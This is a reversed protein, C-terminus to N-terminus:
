ATEAEPAPGAEPSDELTPAAGPASADTEPVPAAAAVPAPPAAQQPEAPNCHTRLDKLHDVDVKEFLHILARTADRSEEVTMSSQAILDDLNDSHSEVQSLRELARLRDLDIGDHRDEITKLKDSVNGSRPVKFALFVELVRRLVNPMMFAYDSHGVGVKEFELVKQFLYHYESDFERLQKPLEILTATRAAAGEPVAVDIFLLRATPSKGPEARARGKWAKKFENMCPQNHTFVFLQGVKALRNLLLASAYNMAKTDLSSVPDDIVVILDKIKRDESSLTSLFYCIAIATKEGESPAGRVLAGHRHLEYGEAVAVITLEGHGLYSKVLANIKDAAPGHQQVKARLTNIEATLNEAAAKADDAKTTAEEIGAVHAKYAKATQAVYHKRIADRAKRQHDNFSDVMAAHQDCIANVAQCAEELAQVQNQMEALPPLIVAVPTTPTAGRAQLAQLATDLLSRGAALVTSLTAAAAEFSPQFEASLQAAAPVAAIAIDLQASTEAGAKAAEQVSGIFDSVKDDFASALLARRAPSVENGCHLCSSLDHEAHYDHGHKVWQVMTPHADLGEVVVSGISKPCLDAATELCALLGALPVDVPKVKAPAESRACTATAADLDSDSLIDQESAGAKVDAIFQTAEYRRAQRLRGSIENATTKKYEGFAKEREAKIKADSLSLALAAPLKGECDKLQEAADGQDAGITFIPSAHGEAWRLNEEVFDHNFVCIRKELGNLSKPCSYKVGDEMEIEFTCDDPLRQHRAGQQLSAFIRSLTSKGCGNFGYILNFRMFDVSPTSSKREALVTAGKLQRINKIIAM